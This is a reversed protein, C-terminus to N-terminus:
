EAPKESVQVASNALRAEAARIQGVTRLTYLVSLVAICGLLAWGLAFWETLYIVIGIGAFAVQCLMM